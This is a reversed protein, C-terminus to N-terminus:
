VQANALVQTWGKIYSATWKGDELLIHPLLCKDSTIYRLPLWQPGANGEKSLTVKAGCVLKQTKVM